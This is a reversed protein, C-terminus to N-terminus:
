EVSGKSGHRDLMWVIYLWPGFIMVSLIKLLAGSYVGFLLMFAQGGHGRSLAEGLGMAETYSGAGLSYFADFRSMIIPPIVLGGFFWMGWWVWVIWGRRDGPVILRWADRVAIPVIVLNAFPIIWGFTALWPSMKLDKGLTAQRAYTRHFWTIWVLVMGLCAINYILVDLLDPGIGLDNDYILFTWPSTSVLDYNYVTVGTTWLVGVAFSIFLLTLIGHVSLKM